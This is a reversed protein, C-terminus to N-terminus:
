DKKFFVEAINDWEEFPPAKESYYEIQFDLSEPLHFLKFYNLFHKSSAVENPIFLDPNKRKLDILIQAFASPNKLRDAGMINNFTIIRSKFGNTWIEKYAYQAIPHQGLFVDHSRFKSIALARCIHNLEAQSLEPLYIIEAFNAAHLAPLHFNRHCLPCACVLNNPSMDKHNHNLHHVEQFYESKYGCFQCTYNDRTLVKRYHVQLKEPLRSYETYGHYLDKVGWSLPSADLSLPRLEM